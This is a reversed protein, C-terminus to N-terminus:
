KILMMKRTEMYQGAQLRYLYVGSPLNIANFSVEHNGPNITLHDLLTAIERGTTDYVKLTVISTQPLSFTITTGPNFPNPYNQALSFQGPLPQNLDIGGVNPTRVTRQMSSTTTDIGDTAQVYWTYYTYSQLCNTGDFLVYTTDLNAITTDLNPGSLHFIYEVPDQNPDISEQWKFPIVMSSMTRKDSPTSLNFPTPSYNVPTAGGEATASYYECTLGQGDRWIEFGAEMNDLYWTTYLYGRTLADHVFDKLDLSVATDPVTLKYAIYNWNWGGGSHAFYVDWTRGGIDVTAVKSGGPGAGGGYNIWIMLEAAGDPASKGNLSFWCEFSANWTGQVGSTDIIWTFPATDLEGALIPFPNYQVATGGGWHYGKYIFPYSVVSSSNHTSLTVKFYSSQLDIDLCQSGVGEGSGWVNNSVHYEGDMVAAWNPNSNSCYETAHTTQSMYAIALTLYVLFEKKM